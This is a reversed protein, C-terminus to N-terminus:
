FYNHPDWIFGPPGSYDLLRLYIRPTGLQRPPELYIGPNVIHGWPVAGEGGGHLIPRFILGHM